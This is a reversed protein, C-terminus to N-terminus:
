EKDKQKKKLKALLSDTCKSAIRSAEFIYKPDDNMRSVWEKIYGRSKEIMEKALPVGIETLLFCAGIEAVLEGLAYADPRLKLEVVEFHCLEHCATEYYDSITEFSRKPPLQINKKAVNYYARVGGHRIVAGSAVMLEEALAFDPEDNQETPVVLYRQVRDNYELQEVNYVPFERLLPVLVDEGKKNKTKKGKEDRKPILTFLIVHTPIQDPRVEAGTKELWADESGWFKSQFGQAMASFILLLPNIGHYHRKSRFNCPFGTNSSASWPQRWPIVDDEIAQVMRQTIDQRIELTTKRKTITAM